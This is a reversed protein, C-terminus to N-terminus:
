DYRESHVQERALGMDKRLLDRVSGVMRQLGCIYAHPKVDGVAALEGWLDRVHTQVYGRRGTWAGRPQSLTPEFRIYPYRQALSELEDRYLMDEEHRVGLLVWMPARSGAAVAAGVMSRMPTLGTGTAIM